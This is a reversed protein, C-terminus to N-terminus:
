KERKIFHNVHERDYRWTNDNSQLKIYASRQTIKKVVGPGYGSDRVQSGKKLKGFVNSLGQKKLKDMSEKVKTM